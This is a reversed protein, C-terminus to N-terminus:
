RVLLVRSVLPSHRNAHQRRPLEQSSRVFYVGPTLRSVDNPGPLLDMVKRGTADLLAPRPVRDSKAPGFDTMDRPLSLVGRIVTPLPTAGPASGPEEAIGTPPGVYVAGTISDNGPEMDGELQVFSEFDFWGRVKPVWATFTMEGEAGPELMVSARSLYSQGPVRFWCFFTENQTGNNKVRVKPRVVAGSDVTDGPVLIELLAVDNLRAHISDTVLDNAGFEDGALATSCRVGVGGRAPATWPAFTVRASDSPALGSVQVTDVWDGIRIIVPFTAPSSGFNWVRAEPVYQSDPTVIGRPAFVANACADTDFRELRAGAHVTWGDDPIQVPTAGSAFVNGWPLYQGSVHEITGDLGDRRGDTALFYVSDTAQNSIFEAAETLDFVLKNNPFPQDTRPHRWTRFSKYFLANNRRGVIFDLGVRDRTPHDLQVRALLSPQYGVTDEMWGIVRQSLYYDMVAEYSMWFFGGDGWGPGWSNVVRFAGHGDATTLTDDYGCFTVIHGGRNSGTRESACYMNNYNAIADFNGWVNIALPVSLGNALLQRASNIGVTDNTRAWHWDKVRYPIARAYASESPWETYSNDYPCDAMTGCGSEVILGMNDEFGSGNDGGGNVQNYCFKPSFQHAPDTLDWQRERFEVQTRHYYAVGWSACSGISGQNGVPPLEDSLDVRGIDAASPAGPVPLVRKVEREPATQGLDESNYGLPHLALATAALALIIVAISKM